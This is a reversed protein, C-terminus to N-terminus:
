PFKSAEQVFHGFGRGAPNAPVHILNVGSGDLYNEFDRGHEIRQQTNGYGVAPQFQRGGYNFSITGRKRGVIAGDASCQLGVDFRVLESQVTRCEAFEISALESGPGAGFFLFDEPPIAFLPGGFDLRRRPDGSQKLLVLAQFVASTGFVM